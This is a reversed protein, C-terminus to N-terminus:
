TGPRLGFSVQKPTVVPILESIAIVLRINGKQIRETSLLMNPDSELGLDSLM